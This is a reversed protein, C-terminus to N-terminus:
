QHGHTGHDCPQGDLLVETTRAIHDRLLEAGGEADRALAAGALARHEGVLDRPAGSGLPAAWHRYLEAEARLAQATEVLRRSGCGSLLAAHFEEHAEYWAADREGTRAVAEDRRTLLHHAAVVTTEWREDGEAISKRFTISELEVRAATLDVLDEKSLPIVTYGQHAHPRVLREAALRTLAERAVGVSTNYAGCLDPFKLRQGPRLRAAFIDARLREYVEDTRTRRPHSTTTM